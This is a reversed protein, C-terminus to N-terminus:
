GDLGNFFAGMWAKQDGRIQTFLLFSACNRSRLKPGKRPQSRQLVCRQNYVEGVKVPHYGGPKYGDEGEDEDDTYDEGSDSGNVSKKHDDDDDDDSNSEADSTRYSDNGSRHSDNTSRHSDNASRHSDNVSRESRHSSGEHGAVRKAGATAYDAPASVNSSSPALGDANSASSGYKNSGGPSTAGWTSSNRLSAVANDHGEDDDSSHDEDDDDDDDEDDDDDDDFIEDREEDSDLIHDVSTSNAVAKPPSKSSLNSAVGAVIADMVDEDDEDRHVNDENNHEDALVKALQDLDDLGGTKNNNGLPNKKKASGRFSPLEVKM